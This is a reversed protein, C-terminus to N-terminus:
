VVSTGAALKALLSVLSRSRGVGSAVDDSGAGGLKQTQIARLTPIARGRLKGLLGSFAAPDLGSLPFAPAASGPAVTRVPRAIPKGLNTWTSTSLPSTQLGTGTVGLALKLLARKVRAPLKKKKSTHAEWRAATGAPLDGRAEAAYFFRRQAQSRFPM